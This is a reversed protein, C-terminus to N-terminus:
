LVVPSGHVSLEVVDEGTYSHPGPFYTAVAHDSVCTNSRKCASEEGISAPTLRVKALTAHRPQLEDSRAILRGAIPRADPGSIRVVGIGGRGPPTAIAVITDTVSFM